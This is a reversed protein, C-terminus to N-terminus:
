NPSWLGNTKKAGSAELLRLQGAGIDYIMGHLTLGRENIARKVAPHLRLVELSQHVNLEAVRLSRADDDPLKDLETKHKRRLRPPTSLELTEVHVHCSAMPDPIYM